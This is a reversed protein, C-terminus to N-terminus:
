QEPAPAQGPGQRMHQQMHVQHQELLAKAKTQQEPTLINYIKSAITAHELALAAEVRGVQGALAQVKAQDSTGSIAQQMLQEHIQRSQTRLPRMTAKEKAFIDKVQSQQEATLDLKQTLFEVMHGPAGGGGHHMPGQALAAMGAVLIAFAALLIRYHRATM